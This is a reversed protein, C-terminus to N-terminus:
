SFIEEFKNGYKALLGVSNSYYEEFDESTCVSVDLYGLRELAEKMEKATGGTCIIPYKYEIHPCSKAVQNSLDWATNRLTGGNLTLSDQKSISGNILYLVNTTMSGADVIVINKKDTYNTAGLGEAAVLINKIEFEFPVSDIYAVKMGLFLQTFYEKDDKMSPYPSTLILNFTRENTKLYIEHLARTLRIQAEHHGKRINGFYMRDENGSYFNKAGEGSYYDFGGFAVRKVGDLSEFGEVEKYPSIVSSFSGAIIEGENKFAYKTSFNGVDVVVTLTM